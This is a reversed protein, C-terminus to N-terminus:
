RIKHEEHENLQQCLDNGQLQLFSNGNRKGSQSADSKTGLGLKKVREGCSLRSRQLCSFTEGTQYSPSQSTIM